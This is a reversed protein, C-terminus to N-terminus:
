PAALVLPSEDRVVLAAGRCCFRKPRLAHPDPTLPADTTFCVIHKGPPVVFDREFPETLTNIRLHSSILPGDIWLNSYGEYSTRPVFRLTVTLPRDATNTLTLKGTPSGCWRVEGEPPFFGSHWSALVTGKGPVPDPPVQDAPRLLWLTSLEEVVEVPPFFVSDYGLVNRDLAGDCKVTLGALRLDEPPMRGWLDWTPYCRGTVGWVVRGDGREFLTLNAHFVSIWVQGYDGVIHTARAALVDATRQRLPVGHPLRDLARRVRPRSPLGGSTAAVALLLAPICALCVAKNLRSRMLAALPALTVASLATGSFFIIPIWYKFCFENRAVWELTGIAMGYALGGVVLVVAARLPSGLGRRVAPVLLSLAGTAAVALFGPWCPVVTVLWTNYALMAWADPWTEMSTLGTEFPDQNTLVMMRFLQGGGAAALLLGLSLVAERDLAGTLWSWLRVRLKTGQPAKARLRLLARLVVVPALMVPVASNVWVALLVSVLAAPLRHWATSGDARPETLLMAAVGLALAVCYHPQGFTTVFRFSAPTLLVFLGAAMAGVLPWSPQRLVWRATLFFTAFGAFLVLWGQVLLNTMPNKFPMALLPVLMGIRNCEWYFPTWRYLSSLVPVISDSTNGAHYDGGSIWLAVLGCLVLYPWLPPLARREVHTEM